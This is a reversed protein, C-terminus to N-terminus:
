VYQSSSKSAEDLLNSLAEDFNALRNTEMYKNLKEFTGQKVSVWRAEGYNNQMLSKWLTAPVKFEAEKPPLQPFPFFYITSSDPAQYIVSGYFVLKFPIEPEKTRESHAEGLEMEAVEYEASGCVECREEMLRHREAMQKDKPVRSEKESRCKKCIVHIHVTSGEIVKHRLTGLYKAVQLDADQGCPLRVTTKTGETFRPVVSSVSTWYLSKTPTNFHFESLLNISLIAEDRIRNTISLQVLLTPSVAYTEPEVSLVEFDFEPM